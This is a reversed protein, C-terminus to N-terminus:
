FVRIAKNELIRMADDVSKISDGLIESQHESLFAKFTKKEQINKTQKMVAKVLNTRSSAYYWYGTNTFQRLSM